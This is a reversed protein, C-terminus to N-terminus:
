PPPPNTRTHYNFQNGQYIFITGCKPEKFTEIPELNSFPFSYVIVHRLAPLDQQRLYDHVRKMKDPMLFMFLVTTEPPLKQWYFNRFYVRAGKKGLLRLWSIFWMIPSLEYGIAQAGLGHAELLVKGDGSGLDILTDQSNLSIKRLARRIAPTFTPVYPAGILGAYATPFLLILFAILIWNFVPM